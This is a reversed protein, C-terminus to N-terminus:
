GFRTKNSFIFPRELYKEVILNASSLAKAAPPLQSALIQISRGARSTIRKNVEHGIEELIMDPRYLIHDGAFIVAQIDLVNSANVVLTALYSAETHVVERATVDGAYARNVVAQWSNLQPDLQKSMEIIRPISAYMEICGNNGCDCKPGNINISTHGFGNGLGSPGNVLRGDLMLSAGIGTDVLLELFRDCGVSSGHCREALALANADNELVVDCKFRDRLFHAAAFDHFIEFNPPDLIVGLYTNLPGPSAVGIGMLRETSIHLAVMDGLYDSAVNLAEAASVVGALSFSQSDFINGCLDSLGVSISDRSIFIGALYAAEANWSLVKTSQRGSASPGEKIIGTSLLDDAILSTAARTLDMHRALQARTMPTFRLENFFRLYNREKMRAANLAKINSM